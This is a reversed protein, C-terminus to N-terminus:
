SALFMSMPGGGCRDPSQPFKAAGATKGKGAWLSGDSM